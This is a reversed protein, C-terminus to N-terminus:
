LTLAVGAQFGVEMTAWTLFEETTAVEVTWTPDLPFQGGM